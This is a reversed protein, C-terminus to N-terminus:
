PQIVCSGTQPYELDLRMAMSVLSHFLPGKRNWEQGDKFIFAERVRLLNSQLDILQEESYSALIEEVHHAEAESVTISFKNYDLIDQFPFLNRDVIFAPICGAYIAEFTRTTRGISHFQSDTALQIRKFQYRYSSM